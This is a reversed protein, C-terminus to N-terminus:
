RRPGEISVPATEISAVFNLKVIRNLLGVLGEFPSLLLYKKGILDQLKGVKISGFPVIPIFVPPPSTKSRQLNVKLFPTEYFIVKGTWLDKFGKESITHRGTMDQYYIVDQM